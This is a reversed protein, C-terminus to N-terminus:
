RKRRGYEQELKNKLRKGTICFCAIAAAALVVALLMLAIGGYFLLESSGLKM